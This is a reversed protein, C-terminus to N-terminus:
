WHYPCSETCINLAKYCMIEGCLTLYLYKQVYLFYINAWKNKSMNPSAPSGRCEHLFRWQECLLFQLSSHCINAYKIQANVSITSPPSLTASVLQNILVWSLTVLRLFVIICFKSNHNLHYICEYLTDQNVYYDLLLFVRVPFVVYRLM